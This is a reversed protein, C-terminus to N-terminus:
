PASSRYLVLLLRGSHAPAAFSNPQRGTDTVCIILRGNELRYIGQLWYHGVTFSNPGRQIDLSAAECIGDQRYEVLARDDRITITYGAVIRAAIADGNKVASVVKWTGDLSEPVALRTDALPPGAGLWLAPVLLLANM